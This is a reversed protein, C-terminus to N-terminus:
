IELTAAVRALDLMVELNDNSARNTMGVVFTDLDVLWFVVCHYRNNGGDHWRVEGVDTDMSVWGYGYFTDGFGEDIHRGFLADMSDDDFLGGRVALHLRVMDNVTSLLGGNGRLNWYPGDDAWDFELPTGWRRRNAVGRYGASMEVASWDPLVYGTHEMGAPEFVADRLYAEYGGGTALEVIRALYSYGINSYRYRKKRLVTRNTRREFEAWGVDDYDNGISSRFGSSHTLLQHVTIRQKNDRLGPFWTGIRDDFSLAGDAQLAVIAMGTLGKTVSGIDFVTDASCAVDHKGDCRGVGDAFVVAGNRAVGVAGSFGQGDAAALRSSLEAAIADDSRDTPNGAFLDPGIGPSCGLVVLCVIAAAM